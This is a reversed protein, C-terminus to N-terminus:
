ALELAMVLEGGDEAGTYKFGLRSYFRALADAVWGSRQEVFSDVFSRSMLAPATVVVRGDAHM